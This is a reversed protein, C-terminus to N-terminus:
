RHPRPDGCDKTVRLLYVGEGRGGGLRNDLLQCGSSYTHVVTVVMDERRSSDTASLSSQLLGRRCM